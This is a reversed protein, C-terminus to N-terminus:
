HRSMKKRACTLKRHGMNRLADEVLTVTNKHISDVSIGMTKSSELAKMERLSVELLYYQLNSFCFIELVQLRKYLKENTMFYMSLM